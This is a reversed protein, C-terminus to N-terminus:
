EGVCIVNLWFAVVLPACVKVKPVSPTPVSCVYESLAVQALPDGDSLTGPPVVPSSTPLETLSTLPMGGPVKTMLLPAVDSVSVWDQVAVNAPWLTVNPELEIVSMTVVAPKNT